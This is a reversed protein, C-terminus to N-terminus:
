RILGTNGEAATLVPYANDGLKQYWALKGESTSGNLLYAVEGSKLQEPTFAKVVDAENVGEPYNLAGDEIAKVADGTQEIGNITLKASSNYALIGSATSSSAYIQGVLLNVCAERTATINGTGLVNNLNCVFALGILNGVNYTGSINGYNASNQITGTQLVGVM